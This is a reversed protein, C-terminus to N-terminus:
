DRFNVSKSPSASGGGKKKQNPELRPTIQAQSSKAKPKARGETRRPNGNKGRKLGRGGQLCTQKKGVKRM